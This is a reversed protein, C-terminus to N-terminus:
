HILTHPFGSASRFLVLSENFSRSRPNLFHTSSLTLELERAQAESLPLGFTHGSLVSKLSGPAGAYM